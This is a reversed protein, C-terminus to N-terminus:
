KYHTSKCQESVSCWIFAYRKLRSHGWHPEFTGLADFGVGPRHLMLVQDSAVPLEEESPPEGGVLAWLAAAEPSAAFAAGAAVASAVFAAGVAVASAVVAAGEAVASAVVAQELGPEPEPPWLVTVRKCKEDPVAPGEAASAAQRLLAEVTVEQGFSALHGVAKEAAEWPQQAM